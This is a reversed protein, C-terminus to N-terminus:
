SSLEVTGGADSPPDGLHYGNAPQTATYRIGAKHLASMARFAIDAWHQRDDEPMDRPLKRWENAIFAITDPHLWFALRGAIQESAADTGGDDRLSNRASILLNRYNPDVVPILQRELLCNLNWLARQEAQDETGLLDTDTFRALFDFLVLAEDETLTITIDPM